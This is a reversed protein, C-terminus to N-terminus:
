SFSLKSQSTQSIFVQKLEFSHWKRQFTYFDEGKEEQHETQVYQKRRRLFQSGCQKPTNIIEKPNNTFGNLSFQKSLKETESEEIM